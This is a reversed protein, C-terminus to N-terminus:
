LVCVHLQGPISVVVIPLTSQGGLLEGAILDALIVELDRFHLGGMDCIAYRMSTSQLLNLNQSPTFNSEMGEFHQLLVSSTTLSPSSTQSQGPWQQCCSAGARITNSIM